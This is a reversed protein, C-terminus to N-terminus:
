LSKTCRNHSKTKFLLCWINSCLRKGRECELCSPGDQECLRHGGRQGWIRMVSRQTIQFYIKQNLNLSSLLESNSPFDSGGQSVGVYTNRISRLISAVISQIQIQKKKLNNKKKGNAFHKEPAAVQSALLLCFTQKLQIDKHTKNSPSVHNLLLLRQFDSEKKQLFSVFFFVFFLLRSMNSKFRCKWFTPLIDRARCSSEWQGPAAGEMKWTRGPLGSQRSVTVHGRGCFQYLWVAWQHGQSFSFSFSLTSVDASDQPSTILRRQWMVLCSLRWSIWWVGLFM